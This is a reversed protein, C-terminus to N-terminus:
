PQISLERLRRDLSQRSEALLRRAEELCVMEFRVPDGPALQGLRDHDVEAVVGIKPYGGITPGDPGLVVPAGANTVQVTGVCAPESTLEFGHALTPGELRTGVRDRAHSVRYEHSLFAALDFLQAQPGPLLRFTGGSLSSPLDSLRRGRGTGLALYVAFGSRAEVHVREGAAVEWSGNTAESRGGIRVIGAAGVIGLTGARAVTLESSGLLEWVPSGPDNGVIANALQASEHDLPGGPPVGFKRLDLLPRSQRSLLGYVKLPEIEPRRSSGM